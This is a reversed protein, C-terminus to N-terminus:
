RPLVSEYISRASSSKRLSRDSTALGHAGGGDVAHDGGITCTQGISNLVWRPRGPEDDQVDTPISMLPYALQLRRTEALMESHQAEICTDVAGGVRGWTRIANLAKAQVEDPQEVCEADSM